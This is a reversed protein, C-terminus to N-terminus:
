IRRQLQNNCPDWEGKVKPIINDDNELKNKWQIKDWIRICKESKLASMPSNSASNSLISRVLEAPMPM